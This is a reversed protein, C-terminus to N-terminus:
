VILRVAGDSAKRAAMMRSPLGASRMALCALTGAVIMVRNMRRSRSMVVREKSRTLAATPRSKTGRRRMAHVWSVFSAAPNSGPPREHETLHVADAPM